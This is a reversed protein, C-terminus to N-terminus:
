GLDQISEPGYTWFENDKYFPEEWFCFHYKITISFLGNDNSFIFDRVPSAHDNIDSGTKEGFFPLSFDPTRNYKLLLL